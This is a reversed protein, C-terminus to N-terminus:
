FHMLLLSKGPLQDVRERFEDDHELSVVPPIGGVPPAHERGRVPNLGHAPETCLAM